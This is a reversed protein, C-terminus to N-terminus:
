AAMMVGKPKNSYKNVGKQSTLPQGSKEFSSKDFKQWDQPHTEMYPHNGYQM